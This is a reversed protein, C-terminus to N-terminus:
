IAVGERFAVETADRMLLTFRRADDLWRLRELASLETYRLLQAHSLEYYYDNVVRRTMM